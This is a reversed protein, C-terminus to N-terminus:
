GRLANVQVLLIKGRTGSSTGISAPWDVSCQRDIKLLTHFLWRSLHHPRPWQMVVTGLVMDVWDSSYNSWWLVPVMHTIDALEWIFCGQNWFWQVHTQIKSIIKSWCHFVIVNSSTFRQDALDAVDLLINTSETYSYISNTCMHM